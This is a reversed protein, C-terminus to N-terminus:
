NQLCQILSSRLSTKKNTKKKETCIVKGHLGLSFSQVCSVDQSRHLLHLKFSELLGESFSQFTLYSSSSLALPTTLSQMNFVDLNHPTCQLDSFHVTIIFTPHTHHCMNPPPQFDHDTLAPLATQISISRKGTLM